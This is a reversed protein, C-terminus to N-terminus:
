LSFTISDLNEPMVCRPEAYIRSVSIKGDKCAQYDSYRRSKVSNEGGELISAFETNEENLPELSIKDGIFEMFCTDTFVAESFKEHSFGNVNVFVCPHDRGRGGDSAVCLSALVELNCSVFEALSEFHWNKRDNWEMGPSPLTMSVAIGPVGDLVAQRAAGCTGSYIIETGLNEGKNIGSVVVDIKTGLLNDKLASCVCDAPTGSSTWHKESLRKLILKSGITIHHSNGSRNGDPAIVFVNHKKSLENVLAEIGWAGYGDDNTVLVNM